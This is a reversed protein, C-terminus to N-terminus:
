LLDAYEAGKTRTNTTAWAIARARAEFGTGFKAAPWDSRGIMGGSDTDYFVAYWHGDTGQDVIAHTGYQLDDFRMNIEKTPNRLTAYTYATTPRDDIIM